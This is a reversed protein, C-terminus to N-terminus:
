GIEIDTLVIVGLRHFSQVFGGLDERVRRKDLFGKRDRVPCSAVERRSDYLEVVSQLQIRIIHLGVEQHRLHIALHLAVIVGGTGECLNFLSIGIVRAQGQLLSPIQNFVSLLGAETKTLSFAEIFAPLLPPLFGTYTDHVAHGASITLVRDTEFQESEAPLAAAVEPM